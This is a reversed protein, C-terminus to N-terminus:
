TMFVEVLHSLYVVTVLAVPVAAVACVLLPARVLRTAAGIGLATRRRTDRAHLVTVLTAVTVQATATLLSLGVYGVVPPNDLGAAACVTLIVAAACFPLVLRVPFVQPGTSGKPTVKFDVTRPMVREAMAVAVGLVIFPWRSAAYLAREWSVIPANAPRLLGHRRIVLSILLIWANLAFWLAFFLVFNVSVWPSGTACAIAFLCIGGVSMLALLLDFGSQFTFQAALRRPLVRRTRLVLGFFVTTLSHAWQFEQTVMAAFDPPGDGRAAANIAFAGRWGAVNLLYSTTFDEALDPGLGGIQRLASTRVAYHSGICVPTGDGNFGLQQAGHFVAEDHPRGRVTWSLGANADCVSPAAVYGVAPDAFHRVMERLYGLAPVHDSDLQSVVDYSEYGFHDYFYALNGEKCRRRRPWTTRQYRSDDRRTSILVGREACWVITEESPDEDALWVDYQWPHDQALMAELTTRVLPWPESPAKTVIMAVRLCPPAVEPALSRMRNVAQLFFMSLALVGLLLVSNVVFGVISIRNGPLLWWVVLGALTAVWGASLFAIARAPGRPLTRALMNAGATRRQPLPGFVPGSPRVDVVRGDSLDSLYDRLEEEDAQTEAAPLARHRGSASSPPAPLVRIPATPVDDPDRYREIVETPADVDFRPTM